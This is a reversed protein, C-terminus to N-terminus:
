YIFIDQSDIFLWYSIPFHAFSAVSYKNRCPRMLCLSTWYLLTQICIFFAVLSEEGTMIEGLRFIPFPQYPSHTPEPQPSLYGLRQLAVSYQCYWCFTLCTGKTRSTESRPIQTGSLDGCTHFSIHVFIRIVANNSSALSVVHGLYALSIRPGGSLLLHPLCKFLFLCSSPAQHTLLGKPINYFVLLSIFSVMFLASINTYFFFCINVQPSTWRHDPISQPAYVSGPPLSGLPPSISWGPILPLGSGSDIDKPNQITHLYQKLFYILNLARWKTREKLM